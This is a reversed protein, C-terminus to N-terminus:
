DDKLALVLWLAAFQISFTSAHMLPTEGAATQWMQFYTGGVASFIGFWVLIAIGCAAIALTKSAQFMEADAKRAKWTNLSGKAALLGAALEGAIIMFLMVWVIASSTVPPGFHKPYAVHDSMGVMLAVFGHAPQLNMLNQLAYFLCFVAVFAAIGIKIHRIM